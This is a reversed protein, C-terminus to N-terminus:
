VCAFRPWANTKHICKNSRARMQAHMSEAILWELFAVDTMTSMISSSLITTPTNPTETQCIYKYVRKYVCKYVRKYVGKNPPSLKRKAIFDVFVNWTVRESFNEPIAWIHLCPPLPVHSERSASLVHERTHRWASEGRRCLRNPCFVLFKCMADNQHWASVPRWARSVTDHSCLVICVHAAHKKQCKFWQNHVLIQLYTQLCTQLCSIIVLTHFQISFCNKTCSSEM